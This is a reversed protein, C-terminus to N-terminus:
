LKSGNKQKNKFHTIEAIKDLQYPSFKDILALIYLLPLLLEIHFSDLPAEKKNFSPSLM